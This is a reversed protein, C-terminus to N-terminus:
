WLLVGFIVSVVVTGVTMMKEPRVEWGGAKDSTSSASGGPAETPVDGGPSAAPPAPPSLIPVDASPGPSPAKNAPAPSPSIVPEMGPAPSPAKGFLEIPLLLSDITFIVLPPEDRLTKAVRSKSKGDSHLTVEDGSTTATVSYKEVGSTALTNISDKMTKLSGYPMYNALAHYQLLSVQEANTLKTFDPVDPDTFAKDNPAFITLGNKAASEFVKLVGTSSILDAFMKCGGAELLGTINTAGSPAVLSGAIIPSSIEIVALTYPITKVEKTYSSDLKSGESSGFGVRGGRLDTINVFGVNGPSNGTTQYLTTASVTGDPIKHLKKADYYDLLIHLSLLNKIVSLPHKGALTQMAANNLTLVTITERSNIEDNLKTQSLYSNFNSYEPFSDLIATINHAGAVTVAITLSLSLSLLLLFQTSAM